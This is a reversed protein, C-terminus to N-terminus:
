ETEANKTEKKKYDKVKWFPDNRFAELEKEYAGNAVYEGVNVIQFAPESGVYKYNPNTWLLCKSQIEGNAKVFDMRVRVKLEDPETLWYDNLIEMIRLYKCDRGWVTNSHGYNSCIDAIRQMVADEVENHSSRGERASGYFFSTFDMGSGFDNPYDKLLLNELDLTTELGNIKDCVKMMRDTSKAKQTIKQIAMLADNAVTKLLRYYAGATVYEAKTPKNRM